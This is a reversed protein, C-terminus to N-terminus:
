NAEPQHELTATKNSTSFNEVLDDIENTKSKKRFSVFSGRGKIVWKVSYEPLDNDSVAAKLDSKFKKFERESGSKEHLTKLSFEWSDQNGLCKRATRYLFKKLGSTIDFYANDVKLLTGKTSILDYLWRSLTIKVEKKDKRETYEWDDIFGFDSKYRGDENCITTDIATRKLRHLSKELDKQQTNVNHKHLAKLIEHRPITITRPPIDSMDNIIKQIRGAVFIIIDWDYISAIYCESHASIRVKRTGDPSEYVIPNKRNKSLAVFPFEMLNMLDRVPNKQIIQQSLILDKQGDADKRKDKKKSKKEQVVDPVEIIDLPTTAGGLCTPILVGDAKKELVEKPIEIGELMNLIKKLFAGLLKRM